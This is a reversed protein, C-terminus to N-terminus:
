MTSSKRDDPLRTSEWEFETLKKELIDMPLGLHVLLLFLIRTFPVYLNFHPIERIMRMWFTGKEIWMKELLLMRGWGPTQSTCWNHSRDIFCSNEPHDITFQVRSISEGPHNFDKRCIDHMTSLKIFLRRLSSNPLLSARGPVRCHFNSHISTSLRHDSNSINERRKNHINTIKHKFTM